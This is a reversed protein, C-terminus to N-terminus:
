LEEQHAEMFRTLEEDSTAIIGKETSFLGLNGIRSHAGSFLLNIPKDNRGSVRSHTIDLSIQGPIPKETTSDIVPGVQMALDADKYAQRSGHITGDDNLQWTTLWTINDKNRSEYFMRSIRELREKGPLNPFDMLLQVGDVAAISINRAKADKIINAATIVTDQLILDNNMVEAVEMFSEFDDETLTLDRIKNREVGSNASLVRDAWQWLMEEISYIASHGRGADSLVTMIHQLTATKAGKAPGAIAVYSPMSVGSIYMDLDRLGTAIPRYKEPTKQREKLEIIRENLIQKLTKAQPLAPASAKPTPAVM